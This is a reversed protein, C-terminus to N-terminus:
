FTADKFGGFFQEAQLYENTPDALWQSCFKTKGGVPCYDLCRTSEGPRHEVLMGKGCAARAEDESDYLKTARTAGVKKIAWKEPKAWREEASCPPPDVMAAQHLAIRERVFGEVEEDSKIPISLSIAQTGPYGANRRAERKSWDRLICIVEANEIAINYSTRLFWAYINTQWVWDLPVEPRDKGVVKWVTTVKFDRITREALDIHDATGKLRVGEFDKFLTTEPLQHGERTSRELVTHVAQGLLSWIRESADETLEDSHKKTLAVIRPPQLLETVSFDAEHKSYSDNSIAEVIPEPIGYHNTLKM